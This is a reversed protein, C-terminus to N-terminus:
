GAIRAPITAHGAFLKNEVEDPSTGRLRQCLAKIENRYAYGSYGAATGAALGTGVGTTAGAMLGTGGGLVAGLPISLGFTFAAPIIGVAAGAMSGLLTGAAAGTTGLVAAGATASAAVVHFKRSTVIDTVKRRLSHGSASVNAAKIKLLVYEKSKQVTGQLYLIGDCLEGKHVDVLIGVASGGIAGMGSSVLAGSCLGAGGGLVAGAPISLGLTFMSPVMGITAGFASGAALGSAGGLTASIVAGGATFLAITNVDATKQHYRASRISRVQQVLQSKQLSLDLERLPLVPVFTKFAAGVMRGETEVTSEGDETQSQVVVPVEDGGEYSIISSIQSLASGQLEHEDDQSSHSQSASGTAVQCVAQTEHPALRGIQSKRTPSSIYREGQTPAPARAPGYRPGFCAHASDVTRSSLVLLDSDPSVPEATVAAIIPRRLPSEKNQMQSEFNSIRSKVAVSQYANSRLYGTGRGESPGGSEQRSEM